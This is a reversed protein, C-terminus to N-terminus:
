NELHLQTLVGGISYDSTDPPLSPEVLVLAPSDTFLLKLPQFSNQADNTWTFTTDCLVDRM